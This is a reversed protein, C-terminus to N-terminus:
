DDFDDELWNEDTIVQNSSSKKRQDEGDSPPRPMKPPRPAKKKQGKKKKKKKKGAAGRDSTKRGADEGEDDDVGVMPPKPKQGKKSKRSKAKKQEPAKRSRRPVPPPSPSRSRAGDDDRDRAKGGTGSEFDDNVLDVVGRPVKGEGGQDDSSSGMDDREQKRILSDLLRKTSESMSEGRVRADEDESESSSVKKAGRRSSKSHKKIAKEINKQVDPQRAPAEGDSESGDTLVQVNNLDDELDDMGLFATKKSAPRGRRRRSRDEDSSSSSSFFEHVDITEIKKKGKKRGKKKKEDSVSWTRIDEVSPIDREHEHEGRQSKRSTFVVPTHEAAKKSRRGTERPAPTRPTPDRPIVELDSVEEESEEEESGESEEGSGEESGGDDEDAYRGGGGRRQPRGGAPRSSRGRHGAGGGDYGDDVDEGEEEEMEGGGDDESGSNGGDRRRGRFTSPGRARVKRDKEFGSDMLEDTNMGHGAGHVHTEPPRGVSMPWKCDPVSSLGALSTLGYVWMNRDKETRARFHYTRNPTTLQFGFTYKKKNEFPKVTHKWFPSPKVDTIMNVYFWGSPETGVEGKSNYYCVAMDKAHMTGDDDTVTAEVSFYRKNWRSVLPLKPVKSKLKLLASTFLPAPTDAM